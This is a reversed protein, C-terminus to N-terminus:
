CCASATSESGTADFPLGGGCGEFLGYHRRFDGIFDFHPALRTERLMRWTNGCVPFVRGTEIDHHKDLVFRDPQELISGRYVVAQGYDECASELGELKFLRYTASFFRLNGLRSALQPDGMDLPRDTVLRSDAFGHGQALRLFDNWYLAGGLCEGYLVPDNRVSDPVRRDAYVDAFYFEGGPKLLRHVGRLVSEKDPSLNVVCNSIIVDFSGPELDLQDLQEIYGYLFRVNDYGFSQAHFARHRNAVALQEDTMDVGVVEGAPGVLQAVAYVDRGAGCGLDLVRCGQLLPPCVLGCGYYRSLVEPHVRALIPKMWPPVASADCCANTKLDGSNKLQRGYYDSVVEHM